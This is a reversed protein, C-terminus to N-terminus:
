HRESVCTAQDALAEIVRCHEVRGHSCTEIMRSLEGRLATLQSIKTEVAALHARAVADAQECSMEPQDALTLLTRLAEMDFGLERAHRIFALRRVHEPGYTRRGSETRPPAPMIGGEEYFRITPVKVGALASLEGIAYDRM